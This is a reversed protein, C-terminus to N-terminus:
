ILLVRHVKYIKFHGKLFQAEKSLFCTVSLRSLSLEALTDLVQPQVTRAPSITPRSDDLVRFAVGFGATETEVSKDKDMRNILGAAESIEIGFLILWVAVVSFAILRRLMRIM